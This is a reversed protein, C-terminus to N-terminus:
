RRLARELRARRRAMLRSRMGTSIAMGLGLARDLTDFAREAATYEVLREPLPTAGAVARVNLSVNVGFPQVSYTLDDRAVEDFKDVRRVDGFGAERLLHALWPLNFGAKHFDWEDKQGGYIAGVWPNHPPTFWGPREVIMRAIVDLDPVGILLLGGDRLVRRWEALLRPTDGHPFHELIHSAYVVEASADDFPLRETIDAVVDVGPADALADVNVFGELPRSGSGLNIKLGAM